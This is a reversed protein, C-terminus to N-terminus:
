RAGTNFIVNSAAPENSSAMAPMFFVPPAQRFAIENTAQGGADRNMELQKWKVAAKQAGVLLIVSLIASALKAM